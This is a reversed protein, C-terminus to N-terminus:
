IKQSVYKMATFNNADKQEGHLSEFTKGIQFNYTHKHMYIHTNM